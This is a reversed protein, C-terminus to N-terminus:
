GASDSKLELVDTPQLTFFRDAFLAELVPANDGEWGLSTAQARSVRGTVLRMLEFRSARLSIPAAAGEILQEDDDTTVVVGPAGGAVLMSGMREAARTAGIRVADTTTDGAVGLAHCLDHEHTVADFALALLSPPQDTLPVPQGRWADLVDGVSQDRHRQVQADTWQEFDGTPLNEANRDELLGTLHGVLDKVTWAPCCPVVTELASEDLSRTMADIRLQSSEYSAAVENLDLDAM